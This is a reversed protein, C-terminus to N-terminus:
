CKNKAEYKICYNLKGCKNENENKECLNYDGGRIKITRGDVIAYALKKRAEEYIKQITSRAIGMSKASEEQTLREKDILRISEYEEVSM